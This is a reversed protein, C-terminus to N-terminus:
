RRDYDKQANTNYIDYATLAENYRRDYDKQANTNAIDYATLAENYRRDYDKQANTNAIDYATLAENYSKDYAEKNANYDANYKDMAHNYETNYQNWAQNYGLNYENWAKNYRDGYQNYAKNYADNYRNYDQNELGMLVNLRNYMDNGEDRYMNYAIQQLEPIKAALESMYNNYSQQAASGAYSSALGGTRAAMQGLTDQMAQQGKNTYQEAYMQYLPDDQYNYSFKERNQIKNNLADIDKGYRSNYDAFSFESDGDFQFPDYQFSKDWNFQM